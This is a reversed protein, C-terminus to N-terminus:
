EDVSEIQGHYDMRFSKIPVGCTLAGMSIVDVYPAFASIDEMNIGGSAEITIESGQEDAEKRVKEVVSSLLKPSMNDLMLIDAGAEVAAIATQLDEAEVEILVYPGYKERIIEVGALVADPGGGLAAIHNDKLMALSTLDRRHPLAGGHILAKKEFIGFGPTTKRTGAVRTGPNAEEAVSSAEHARTAIGTMRSMVNLAIREAKLMGSVPGSVMLVESGSECYPDNFAGQMLEVICGEEEFIFAAEDLGSLICDVEATIVATATQDNFLISTLDGGGSDQWLYSRLMEMEENTMEGM